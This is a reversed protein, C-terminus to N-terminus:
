IITIDSAYGPKPNLVIASYKRSFGSRGVAAGVGSSLMAMSAVSAPRTSLLQVASMDTTGPLATKNNVLHGTGVQLQSSTCTFRSRLIVCPLVHCCM